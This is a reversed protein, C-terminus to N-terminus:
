AFVTYLPYSSLSSPPPWCDDDYAAAILAAASTHDYHPRLFSDFYADLRDVDEDDNLRVRAGVYGDPRIVVMTPSKNKTPSSNYANHCQHDHDLYVKDLGFPFAAHIVTSPTTNLCKIVDNKSSTTVYFFSFLPSPTSSSSNSSNSSSFSTARADETLHPPSPAASNDTDDMYYASSFSPRHDNMSLRTMNTTMSTPSGPISFASYSGRTTPYSFSSRHSSSFSSISARHNPETPPPASSLVPPSISPSPPSQLPSSPRVTSTSGSKPLSYSLPYRNQHHQHHTEYRHIFSTPSDLYRRLKRLTSLCKEDEHINGCFVLITFTVDSYEWGMRDLLHYYNPRIRKWRESTSSTSTAHAPAGLTSSSSATGDPKDTRQDPNGNNYYSMAKKTVIHLKALSWGSATTPTSSLSRPRGDTKKSSGNNNSSSSSGSPSPSPPISTPSPPPEDATISKSNSSATCLNSQSLLIQIMTYPKLRANQALSGVAGPDVRHQMMQAAATITNSESVALSFNSATGLNILNTQYPTEGVLCPRNKQIKYTQEQPHIIDSESDLSASISAPSSSSSTPSRNSILQVFAQSAALVDDLKSRSEEHYTDLLLPSARQHLHLYLKWCLNQAQELGLNTSLLGPPEISQAAGGVLFYRRDVTYEECSKSEALFRMHFNFSRVQIPSVSNTNGSWSFYSHVKTFEIQYPDMISKIHRQAKAVPVSDDITLQSWRPQHEFMFYMKQGHGTHISLIFNKKTLVLRVKIAFSTHCVGGEGDRNEKKQQTCFRVLLLCRTKVKPWWLCVLVLLTLLSLLWWLISSGLNARVTSRLAWNIDFLAGNEMPASWSALGGTPSQITRSIRFLLWWLRIKNNITYLIETTLTSSNTNITSWSVMVPWLKSSRKVFRTVSTRSAGTSNLWRTKGCGTAKIRQTPPTAETDTTLLRRSNGTAFDM